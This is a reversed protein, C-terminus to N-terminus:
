KRSPRKREHFWSRVAEMRARQEAPARRKCTSMEDSGPPAGWRLEVCDNPNYTMEYAAGRAVVDDLTLPFSSGDSRTYSVSRRKLEEGLLKELDSKLKEPSTGSPMAYRDKRRLVRAPFGQVVDLAILLRLDRSPTSFDEWPGETEFIAPGEPMPAARQTGDLFKRGNDVSVLRTRVQEELATVVERLAQRPDVLAPSLADDIADYFADVSLRQAELSVDGYDPNKALDANRLRRYVGGSVVVPRFRKFGPGGLEPATAYLFTGRWFRKLAVTGDPQADVAQLVGSRDGRQAIRKTVVLVHGYPDAYVTGPRLGDWTLPVPYYDSEEDTLPTRASGSHARDALTGAVFNGFKRVSSGGPMEPPDANSLLGRCAPPAGGGGRSCEALGFPLGMKFAFYARLVYPLDACDPKLPPAGTSDEGAGLYDHLLNRKRDRVLEHLAGVSFLEGEPADFLTEVWIAYLDEYARSWGRVTPWLRKQSAYPATSRATKAVEFRATLPVPDGVCGEPRFTAVVTGATPTVETFWAYPGGGRREDSSGTAAGAIELKGQLPRSGVLMVRLPRGAAPAAPSTFFTMAAADQCSIAVTPIESRGGADSTADGADETAGMGADAVGELARTEGGRGAGCAVGAVLATLAIGTVYRRSYRRSHPPPPSPM